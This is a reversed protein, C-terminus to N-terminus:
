EPNMLKSQRKIMNVLNKYFGSTNGGTQTWGRINVYVIHCKFQAHPFYRSCVTVHLTM